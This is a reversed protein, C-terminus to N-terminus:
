EAKGQKNLNIIRIIAPDTNLVTWSNDVGCTIANAAITKFM